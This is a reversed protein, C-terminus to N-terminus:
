RKWFRRLPAPLWWNWDGALAMLAPAVVIRLVTADLAVAFALGLGFQRTVLLRTFGFAAFISVMILAASSIIGATQQLGVSVARVNDGSAVVEERIRSLLFVEYDMSLGFLITFLVVVIFPNLGGPPVLGIAGAGIGDQFVYVLFGYAALVSLLNLVTAKLPVVLSRFLAFLTVFTLLLVAPIIRRLSGYLERDIDMRTATWGGIAASLHAGALEPWPEDRLAAVLDMAERSEPDSALFLLVLGTRGDASVTLPAFPQLSPPLESASGVVMDFDRLSEAIVSLGGVRQIRADRKLRAAVAVIARQAPEEWLTRGPEAEVVLVTPGM